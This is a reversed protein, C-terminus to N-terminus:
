VYCLMGPIAKSYYFMPPMIRNFHAVDEETPAVRNYALTLTQLAACGRLPELTGTLQNCVLRLKELAACGQLPDLGGSLRNCNLNLEQLATCLRLPELGGTFKNHGLDLEQLAPLRLEPLPGRLGSRLTAEGAVRLKRLAASCAVAEGFTSAWTGDMNPERAIFSLDLELLSCPQCGAGLLEPVACLLRYKLPGRWAREECSADISHVHGQRALSSIAVMETQSVCWWDQVKYLLVVHWPHFAEYCPWTSRQVAALSKVGVLPRLRHLQQQMAKSLCGLGMVEEFLAVDDAASCAAFVMRLADDPLTDLTPGADMRVVAARPKEHRLSERARRARGGRWVLRFDSGLFPRFDRAATLPPFENANTQPSKIRFTM